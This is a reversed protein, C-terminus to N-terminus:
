STTMCRYDKAMLDEDLSTPRAAEHLPVSPCSRLGQGILARHHGPDGLGPRDRLLSETGGPAHRARDALAPRLGEVRAVLSGMEPSWVWTSTVIDEASIEVGYRPSEAGGSSGAGRGPRGAQGDVLVLRRTLQGERTTLRYIYVGAGVARGAGDTGDWRAQHLGAPQEGDMLTVLRQGLMNFVDLRVPGAESLHFPILTSPNFPNPYNQGLVDSEPRVLESWALSFSGDAATTTSIRSEPRELDYLVVRAGPIALPESALLVRGEFPSWTRWRALHCSWPRM